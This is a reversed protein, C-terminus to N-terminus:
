FEELRKKVTDIMYNFFQNREKEGSVSIQVSKTQIRQIHERVSKCITPSSTSLYGLTNYNLYTVELNDSEFYLTNNFALYENQFMELKGQLPDKHGQRAFLSLDQLLKIFDHYVLRAENENEFYRCNRYYDIQELTALFTGSTWIEITSLGMFHSWIKTALVIHDSPVRNQAFKQDEYEPHSHISKQWLFLKFATLKPYGFFYFVPLDKALISLRSEENLILNEFQQLISKLWAGMRDNEPISAKVTVRIEDSFLLDDISINYHKCIIVLENLSISSEGNIRRYSSDKSIKLLEALQDVFSINPSLVSKM